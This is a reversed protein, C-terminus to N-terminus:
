LSEIGWDFRRRRLQSDTVCSSSRWFKEEFFRDLNFDSRWQAEPSIVTGVFKCCVLPLTLM